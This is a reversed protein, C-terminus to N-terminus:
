RLRLMFDVFILFAVILNFHTPSQNIIKNKSFVVLLNIVLSLIFYKLIFVSIKLLHIANNNIESLSEYQLLEDRGMFVVLGFCILMMTRVNIEFDTSNKRNAIIYILLLFTGPMGLIGYKPIGLLNVEIQNAVILDIDMNGNVIVINILVIVMLLINTKNYNKHISLVIFTSLFLLIWIQNIKATIFNAETFYGGLGFSIFMFLTIMLFIINRKVERIYDVYKFFSRVAVKKFHNLSLKKSENISGAYDCCFSEIYLIIGFLTFTVLFYTTYLLISM